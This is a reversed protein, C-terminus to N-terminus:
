KGAETMKVFQAAAQQISMCPLGQKKIGREGISIVHFVYDNVPVYDMEILINAELDQLLVVTTQTSHIYKQVEALYKECDKEQGFAETLEKLKEDRDKATCKVYNWM